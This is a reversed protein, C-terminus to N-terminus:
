NDTKATSYLNTTQSGALIPITSPSSKKYLRLYLGYNKLVKKVYNRTEKYSIKEIFEDINSTDYRNCWKELANEGANYSILTYVLNSQYKKLLDSLYWCGFIINTEPQYLKEIDFDQAVFSDIQSAIMLATSPIIQMLGYAQAHSLSLPDFFSEQRMLACVLLPDIGHNNTYKQIHDWYALPYLLQLVEKYNETDGRQALLQYCQYGARIVQRFSKVESAIKALYYWYEPNSHDAKVLLSIEGSAEEPLQYKLLKQARRLHFSINDSFNIESIAVRRKFSNLPPIIWRDVRQLAWWTYYSYYSDNVIARYLDMAVAPEGNKEATRGQWYLFLHKESNEKVKALCSKFHAQAKHFKGWQYYAWGIRWLSESYYKKYPFKQTVKEFCKIAKKYKQNQEYIRGMLYWAKALSPRHHSTRTVKQYIEIAEADKDQNWLINGMLLLSKRAIESSPYLKVIRGLILLAQDKRRLKSHCYAEKYLLNALSNDPPTNAQIQKILELTKEYKYEGMLAQIIENYEKESFIIPQILPGKDMEKIYLESLQAYKSLPFYILIKKLFDKAEMWKKEEILSLGMQFYIYQKEQPLEKISKQYYKQAETYDELFFFNDALKLNVESSFRSQPFQEQLTLYKLIAQQHKGLEALSGALYFLVYDELVEFDPNSEAAELHQKAQNFNGLRFEQIGSYFTNRPPSITQINKKKPVSPPTFHRTNRSLRTVLRPDLTKQQSTYSDYRCGMGALATCIFFLSCLLIGSQIIKKPKLLSSKEM